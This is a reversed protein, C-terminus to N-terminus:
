SAVAEQEVESLQPQRVPLSIRFTTGVNEESSVSIRGGHAEVIAKCIALGLGTGQIQRQTANSSRFFREFLNKQESAPIGIGSDRIEVVARGRLTRLRLDVQGGEPTFKLANSILNDFLQGLRARDGALLPTPGTALSLKIERQEAFPGATEVSESAIAALDVAGIELALKGAEIQALFLLDGVLALLRHANREVVGLFQRQEDTLDGAEGDLVLELYGRISTLPTRLEHSVLAVFEDKLRDLERLRENQERELVLLRELEREAQKRETIDRSIASAGVVKGASDRVPSLTLSIDLLGGDKRQRVVEQHLFGKGDRVQELLSFPEESHEPPALMSIPEGVAEAATWGYTREAGQNWSTIRGDLDASIIADDSSEVISALQARAAEAARRATVDLLFGQVFAPQGEEDRVLYTEDLVWVTRGDAAICRYEGRFPEGTERVRRGEAVVMEVDDPHVVNQLTEPDERWHDAPYGLIQEVQPSVFINSGEMELPRIYMALPLQEVLTRYRREAARLRDESGKAETADFIAGDLVLEGDPREVAQGRELVWRTSGDRTVVRYEVAYPRDEQVAAEIAEAVAERDEPHIISVLPRVRSAFFDSAPYGTLEEIADSIYETTWDEDIACRFIVGPVNSVMTRFREESGLLAEEAERRETVDLLFGQAHQPHGEGNTVVMVEDHFWVVRGDKAVLRYESSFSGGDRYGRRHEELVRERDEPHLLKPFLDPDATWEGPSYGLIPEIQPSMYIASSSENLEDIYTVLPLQEVLARYSAEAEQLRRETQERAALTQQLAESQETLRRNRTALASTVQRLIPFLAGYLLLLAIALVIAVPIVTERVDAALVSYDEHLELAGVPENAGRLRVPVFAELVKQKRDGPSEGQLDTTELLKEGMLVRALDTPEGTLMGIQSHDNSYTLVGDPSWLKVRVDGSRLETRLAEKLERRRLDDVPEELDTPRLQDSVGAVIGSAHQVLEREAQEVAKAQVFWFIAAGALLLAVASYFAFRLVLRPPREAVPVPIV